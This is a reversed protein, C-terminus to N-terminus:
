KQSALHTKGDKWGFRFEEMFIRECVGSQRELLERWLFDPAFGWADGHFRDPSYRLLPILTFINPTNRGADYNPM